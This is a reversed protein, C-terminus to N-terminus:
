LYQSHLSTSKKDGINPFKISAPSSHLEIGESEESKTAKREGLEYSYTYALIKSPELWPCLLILAQKIRTFLSGIYFEFDSPLLMLSIAQKIDNKARDLLENLSSKELLPSKFPLDQPILSMGMTSNCIISAQVGDKGEGVELNYDRLFSNIFPGAKRLFETEIESQSGTLGNLRDLFTKTQVLQLLRRREEM